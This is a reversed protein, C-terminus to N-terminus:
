VKCIMPWAFTGGVSAVMSMLQSIIKPAKDPNKNKFSVMVMRSNMPQRNIVPPIKIAWTGPRM